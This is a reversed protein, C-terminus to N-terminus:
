QFPQQQVVKINSVFYPQIGGTKTFKRPIPNPAPPRRDPVYNAYLSPPYYQQQPIYQQPIYQQPPYQHPMGGTIYLDNFNLLEPPIEPSMETYHNLKIDRSYLGVLQEDIVIEVNPEPDPPVPRQDPQVQRQVPPIPRQDPQAPRQVPQVPRQDPQVPRQVPPVPRQDAQVPRQDPQAPRQVPQVPRQVPPVPRQDALYNNQCSAWLSPTEKDNQIVSLLNVVNQCTNCTDCIGFISLPCINCTRTMPNYYLIELYQRIMPYVNLDKICNMVDSIPLPTICCPNRKYKEPYFENLRKNLAIISEM